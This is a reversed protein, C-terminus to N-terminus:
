RRVPADYSRLPADFYIVAPRAPRGIAPLVDLEPPLGGKLNAQPLLTAALLLAAISLPTM